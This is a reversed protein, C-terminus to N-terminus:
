WSVTTDAKFYYRTIGSVVLSRSKNFAGGTLGKGRGRGGEGGAGEEEEKEQGLVEQLSDELYFPKALNLVATSM